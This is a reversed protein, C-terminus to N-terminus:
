DLVCSAGVALAMVGAFCLPVWCPLRLLVCLVTWGLAILGLAAGALVLAVTVAMAATFFKGLKEKM